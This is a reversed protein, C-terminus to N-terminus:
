SPAANVPRRSAPRFIQALGELLLLTLVAGAAAVAAGRADVPGFHFLDRLAPVAMVASAAALVAIFIGALARNPKALSAIVSGSSRNAAVLCFAALVLALFAVAQVSAEALGLATAAAYVAAVACLAVVGQAAGQTLSLRTFLRTAPDRPPRRMIGPEEGEVEFVISCVPDIIMELFAIHAPALFIPLGLVLPLLALGAIPVHIAVIFGTAKQLNDFIRRGLRIGAVISAFNDDLLVIDAAARAVDTGRQGMAVGINAAKLAPADNVGDGTMAVIEGATQLARVIRLKQEPLIRAFVGIGTARAALEADDLRDLEAGTMALAPEIGAQRAISM